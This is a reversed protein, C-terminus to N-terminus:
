HTPVFVPRLTLPLNTPPKSLMLSQLERPTEARPSPSDQPSLPVTRCMFCSLGM